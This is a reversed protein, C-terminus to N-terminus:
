AVLDIRVQQALQRDHPGVLDPRKVRGANRHGPAKHVESGHHPWGNLSPVCSRSCSCAIPLRLIEGRLGDLVPSPMRAGHPLASSHRRSGRHKTWGVVDCGISRDAQLGRCRPQFAAQPQKSPFRWQLTKFGTPKLFVRREAAGQARYSCTATASRMRATFPMAWDQLTCISVICNCQCPLAIANGHARNM